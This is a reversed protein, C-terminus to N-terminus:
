ENKGYRRRNRFTKAAKHHADRYPVEQWQGTADNFRLFRSGTGQMSKVAILSLKIKGERDGTEYQDRLQDLLKQFNENGPHRQWGRGFLIDADRPILVSVNNTNNSAAAIKPPVFQSNDMRQGQVARRAAEVTQRNRYWAKHQDMIPNDDNSSLPLSKQHIGYTALVYQCEQHSGYHVKTRARHKEALLSLVGSILAHQAYTDLCIHNALFYVPIAQFLKAQALIGAGKKQDKFRDVMYSIHIVGKMQTEKSEMMSMFIYFSSRLENNLTQYSRLGPFYVHIIRGATDNLPLVQRAGNQLCDKDDDDLDDLMIDKVLNNKGFLYLKIEFFVIMQQAASEVDYRNARLFKMRFDQSSIYSEDMEAATEFATRKKIATLRTDLSHLLTLIKDPDSEELNPKSVGYLDEQASLREELSLQAVLSELHSDLAEKETSTRPANWPKCSQICGDRSENHNNMM